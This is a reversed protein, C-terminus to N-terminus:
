KPETYKLYEAELIAVNDKFYYIAGFATVKKLYLNGEDGKIVIRRTVKTNGETAYEETIGEPYKKVLENKFDDKNKNSTNEIITSAKVPKKLLLDIQMIKDKPYKETAKIISADLYSSKAEKYEKNEFAKDAKAIVATYKENLEKAQQEKALRDKDAAAKNSAEALLKEIEALQTKPYSEEQKLKLGEEYSM